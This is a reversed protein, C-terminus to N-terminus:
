LLGLVARVDSIREGRWAERSGDEQDYPARMLVAKMGARSAGSLEGSSGDGIYICHRPSIGLWECATRYIRSDPKVLGVSSSLVAADVLRAFPTQHWHRAVDESCNSILGISYGRERLISLSKVTGPRPSLADRVFAYRVEASARIRNERHDAGLRGCIHLLAAQISLVGVMRDASTLSWESTFQHSDVGLMDAMENLKQQYILRKAKPYMMEDVLTGWLDFIVAKYRSM